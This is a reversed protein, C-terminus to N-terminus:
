GGKYTSYISAASGAINGLGGIINGIGSDSAGNEIKYKALNYNNIANSSNLGGGNIATIYDYITNSTNLLNALNNANRNYYNDYLSTTNDQLSQAYNNNLAQLGTSRMLGRDALGGLMQDYQQGMTNYMKDRYAQFNADNEYNTSLMNNLTPEINNSVTGMTNTMWKEPTYKTGSESSTSSGFLGGTDYTANQYKPADGSSSKGM